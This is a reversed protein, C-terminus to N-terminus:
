AFYQDNLQGAKILFEAFDFDIRRDINVSELDDLVIGKRSKGLAFDSGDYDELLKRKRVYIGGSTCYLTPLDQRSHFSEVDIDQIFNEFYGKEDLVRARYPHEHEIRKLSVACECQDEIVALVSQDISEQKIFPCTPALQAVVDAKYGLEDMARMAHQTVTILPTHDDALDDPRMFPVEAGFEKAVNAIEESDTSCVVKDIYKCNVAKQIMHSILPGKDGMHLLNKRPVGKSGARASIVALVKM